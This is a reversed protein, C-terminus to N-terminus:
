GFIDRPSSFCTFRSGEYMGYAAWNRTLAEEAVTCKLWLNSSVSWDELVVSVSATAATNLLLCVCSMISIRFLRKKSSDLANNATNGGISGMNRIQKQIQLWSM